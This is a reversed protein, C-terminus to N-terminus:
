KTVDETEPLTVNLELISIDDGKQDLQVTVMDPDIKVYKCIVDLIDRKLQPLYHPESDGRRREAVIIQLREKAINATNKKRSLFFDLLAM